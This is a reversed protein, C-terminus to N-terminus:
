VCHLIESLTVLCLLLQGQFGPICHRGCIDSFLAALVGPAMLCPIECTVLWLLWCWACKCLTKSRYLWVCYGVCWAGSFVTDWVHIVLVGACVDLVILM